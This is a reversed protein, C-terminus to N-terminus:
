EKEGLLVFVITRNEEVASPKIVAKLITGSNSYIIEDVYGILIGPPFDGGKGSTRVEDGLEIVSQGSFNDALCLGQERLEIDGRIRMSIAATGAGTVANIAFGEHLLPMVKSSNIDSSYLRGLLNSGADVVAYSNESSVDIGDERGLNIRYLDFWGTFGDNLINGGKIIYNDYRSKIQLASKLEEYQQAADEMQSLENALRANEARLHENEKRIEESNKMSEFWGGVTNGVSRIGKLVPNVIKAIPTTIISIPSSDPITSLMLVALIVIAIIVVVIIRPGKNRIM